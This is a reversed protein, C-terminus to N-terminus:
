EIIMGNLLRAAAHMDGPAADIPLGLRPYFAIAADIDRVVPNLQSLVPKSAM